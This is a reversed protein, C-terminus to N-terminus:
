IILFRRGGEFGVISNLSFKLSKLPSIRIESSLARSPPVAVAALTKTFGTRTHETFHKYSRTRTNSYCLGPSSSLVDWVM